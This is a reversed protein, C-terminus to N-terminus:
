KEERRPTFPNTLSLWGPGTPQPAPELLLASPIRAALASRLLGYGIGALGTLLGPTLVGDPTGCYRTQWQLSNLLLTTRQRLAAAAAPGAPGAALVTLAEGVGSEGHCLSLDRSLPRDALRRVLHAPADPDATPSTGADHRGALALALGATGACWGSSNTPTQRAHRLAKRAADAHQPSGGGVNVFRHLAYAIGATGDAFGAPSAPHDFATGALQDACTRALAAARDLGLEAHISTMAALCGAKGTAWDDTASGAVAVEALEVATDVWRGIGPDDLLVALRALGYALGGLGHLGGCGIATVLEPRDSLLRLLGPTAAVARRAVDGYRAVGSIHALQGLFLAMGLYGNALGAGMPLLLWQRDDVLELGLWNVRDRGPAGRAVIQDAIACAASVLREPPAATGHSPGPMPAADGHAGVPRRTALSATIVWEQDQRDVEGLGGIRDLAADVGSRYLPVATPEGDAALHPSDARAHFYPVDGRWLAVIEHRAFVPDGPLTTRGCLQGLFRDRDLGDRLLSPHTAEDLLTRYAWTPRVVLRVTMASSAKVLQAFDGRHAEIAEYGLRFGELMAAEHDEPDIVRDGLRPRNSAGDFASARRVLRMQDTGPDAWDIRSVPSQRGEDGGAGSLDMIGQEGVVILPLLATRHVSAALLDAAPDGSQTAPRWSPSFLTEVDIAVPDEGSAIVNEYHLDTTNLAHALALLAGQRRYFRDAGDPDALPAAIVFETWGYEPRVLCAATRMGVTPVMRNMWGVFAALRDDHTLDRPKYVLRRGDAFQVVTTTRGARHPDGRRDDVAVLPGPDVGGLLNDVLCNRDATYRALLELMADTVHATAQGLLRALVPLDTFLAALGAPTALQRVFDVFRARSDAGQLLGATRRRHLEEVFTRAALAALQRELTAGLAADLAGLDVQADTVPGADRRFRARAQDVLPRLPLAFATRWDAPVPVSPPPAAARVASEILVAWPPPGVRAALHGDEEALFTLLRDEDVGLEGLRVDLEPGRDARWLDLRRRAHGLRGTDVPDTGGGGTVREHLALGRAWWSQRLRPSEAPALSPPGDADTTNMSNLTGLPPPYSM